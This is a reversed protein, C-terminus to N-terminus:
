RLGPAFANPRSRNTGASSKATPNHITRGNAGILNIFSGPWASKIDDCVLLYPKGSYTSCDKVEGTEWSDSYVNEKRPPLERTKKGGVKGTPQGFVPMAAFSVFFAVAQALQLCARNLM